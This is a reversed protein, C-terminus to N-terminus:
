ASFNTWIRIKLIRNFREVVAAKQDSESAFHHIGNQIMSATFERKFFEKGKDIKLRELKRPDAYRLVSEFAECVSKENKKRAGVM